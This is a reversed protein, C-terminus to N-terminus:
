SKYSTACRLSVNNLLPSRLLTIWFRKVVENTTVQSETLKKNPFFVFYMLLTMKMLSINENLTSIYQLQSFTAHKKPVSAPM